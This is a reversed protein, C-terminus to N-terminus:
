RPMGLNEWLSCSGPRAKWQGSAEEAQQAEGALWPCPCRALPAAARHQERGGRGLKWNRGFPELLPLLPLPRPRAAAKHNARLRVRFFGEMLTGPPEPQGGATSLPPLHPGHPAPSQPPPVSPHLLPSPGRALAPGTGGGPGPYPRVVMGIFEMETRRDQQTHKRQRYGKWVQLSVHARVGGSQMGAPIPPRRPPVESPCSGLLQGGSCPCSLDPLSLRAGLADLDM